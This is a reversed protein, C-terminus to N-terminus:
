LGLEKLAMDWYTEPISSWNCSGTERECLEAAMSLAKVHSIDSGLLLSKTIRYWGPAQRDLHEEDMERITRERDYPLTVFDIVWRGDVDSLM